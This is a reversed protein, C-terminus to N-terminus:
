NEKCPVIRYDNLVLEKETMSRSYSRDERTYLHYYLEEDIGILSIKGIVQKDTMTNKIFQGVRFKPGIVKESCGVFLLSALLVLYKM